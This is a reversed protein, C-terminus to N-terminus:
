GGPNIVVKICGDKKEQFTKYAEPGDELGIRHTILFSPDIQGEEIRRMLPELYRQVHTQGTKLTLSKAIFAGLMTPVAGVFVGPLSIIGGPRCALIAENLAYPREMRKAVTEQVKEIMSGSGHSELGVAEIVADPGEGNTMEKIREQLDGESFDIVEAGAARALAMREPVEDIAIVREAGMLFASRIAFQGVPGCGFVLVTQGPQIDCNEAAMWGTPFIDSLFLVQDDSLGDPVKIPGVDAYPVRLYEAQGGAYGGYAHSYGYLGATPYGTTKAQEEGNPNSRQCLSFLGKQCYRCEGCSITFPVVVRDGVKLKANDKGVAVVEGMTEHGMVDGSKMGPVFGGYLHLDSGCIACSTVRIIADRGDEIEPDPVTECRIDGKGHWCLAKM